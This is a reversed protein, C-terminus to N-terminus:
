KKNMFREIRKEVDARSRGFHRRSQAIVIERSGRGFDIPPLTQMPLRQVSEGLRVWANFKWMETLEDVAIPHYERAFVQADEAGIRFVVMSGVNGLVADRIASSLQSLYQHSLTLCLRYKRAEALVSAFADTTFNHFEDVVLHFDVREGEPIDSRAMAALQMKTVLLSGLLNAQEEGLAGKSLNAILIRRNDMLFRMDITSKPQGVINRIVPASLFQGVKNLIPSIAETSFGKTYNAFENEWFSRVVPDIICAVVRQRYRENTLLKPIGLLTSGPTDLLAAVSNYLIYELRAGWSHRWIHKFASVVGSAVVPRMDPSVQELVNFGIPHELDAPNFYVTQYNREPPIFNLLEKALDGHPDLLAVGRGSAFDQVILNRLLTSKGTGTKGICYLHQRREAQTLGCSQGMSGTGIQSFNNNDFIDM